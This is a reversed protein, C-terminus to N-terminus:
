LMTIAKKEGKERRERTTPQIRTRKDASTYAEQIAEDDSKGVEQAVVRKSCRLQNATTALSAMGLSTKCSLSSQNESDYRPYTPVPPSKGRTGQRGKSVQPVRLGRCSGAFVSGVTSGRRALRWFLKKKRYFLTELMLIIRCPDSSLIQIIRNLM